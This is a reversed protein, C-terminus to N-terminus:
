AGRLFDAVEQLADDAQQWEKLRRVFGHIMGDYRSLRTPVGSEILRRAYAEGEDLLPDFEATMVLAPPLGALSDARLPAAYPNDAEDADELYHRWFWIMTARTLHYGEANSQYSPGDFRCDTIPYLLAQRDIAPGRRARSALTVAAALNGGASDGAVALRQPDLQLQQAQRAIWRTAAFADELPTPFPHEPALRYDVSAVAWGSANALSRCYADHTAISGLVWGGGHFYVVVPLPAADDPLPRYLRVPIPGSPGDAVLDDVAAVAEGLGLLESAALMQRRAQEVTLEHMPTYPGGYVDDLWRRVAPDLPM